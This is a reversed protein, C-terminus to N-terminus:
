EMDDDSSSDFPSSSDGTAGELYQLIKIKANGIITKQDILKRLAKEDYRRHLDQLTNHDIDAINFSGEEKGEGLKKLILSMRTKLRKEKRSKCKSQNNRKKRNKIYTGMSTNGVSVKKLKENLDTIVEQLFNDKEQLGQKLTNGIYFETRM